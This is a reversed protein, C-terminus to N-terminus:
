SLDKEWFLAKGAEPDLEYSSFGFKIYASQAVRNGELVELTLKCCGRDRSITEISSLMKQSLGLGRYEPLVAVDHINMLPKCKFTSFGEFCNMLGAANGDVFALLIVADSRKKLTPILNEKVTDPLPKGGGMIDTAYANLIRVVAEGHADNEFNVPVVSIEM